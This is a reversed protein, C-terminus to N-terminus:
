CLKRIALSEWSPSYFATQHLPLLETLPCILQYCAWSRRVQPHRYLDESLCRAQAVHRGDPQRGHRPQSPARGPRRLQAPLRSAVHDRAMRHPQGPRRHHGTRPSDRTAHHDRSALYPRGTRRGQARDLQRLRRGAVPYPPWPFRGDPPPLCRLEHIVCARVFQRPRRRRRRRDEPRAPRGTGAETLCTPYRDGGSSGSGFCCCASRSARQMPTGGLRPARPQRSGPPGPSRAPRPNRCSNPWRFQSPPASGTHASRASSPRSTVPGAMARASGSTSCWTVTSPPSGCPRLRGRGGVLGVHADRQAHPPRRDDAARPVLPGARRGQRGLAARREGLPWDWSRGLRAPVPSGSSAPSTAAQRTSSTRRTRGPGTPRSNRSSTPPATRTCCRAASATCCSPSRRRPWASPSRVRGPGLDPGQDAPRELQRGAPRAARRGRGRPHAHGLRVARHDGVGPGGDLVLGPAALGTGRRRWPTVSMGPPRVHDARSLDGIGDVVVQEYCAGAGSGDARPRPRPERRGAPGRRLRGDGADWPVTGTLGTGDHVAVFAVDGDLRARILWSDPRWAWLISTPPAAGPAPSVHLGDLDQWLCTAGALPGAVAETWTM